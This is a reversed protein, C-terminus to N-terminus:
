AAVAIDAIALDAIGVVVGGLPWGLWKVRNCDWRNSSPYKAPGIHRGQSDYAWGAQCGRCIWPCGALRCRPPNGSGAYPCSGQCEALQSLDGSAPPSFSMERDWSWVGAVASCM